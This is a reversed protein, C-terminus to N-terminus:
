LVDAMRCFAHRHLLLYTYSKYYQRSYSIRCFPSACVSTLSASSPQRSRQKSTTKSRDHINKESSTKIVNVESISAPTTTITSVLGSNSCFGRPLKRILCNPVPP